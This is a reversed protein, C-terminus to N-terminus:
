KQKQLFGLLAAHWKEPAEFHPIHGVKPLEVLTAGPIAAATKKGLAPYQGVKSLLEPPVSAKGVVTRDEQGIVLLTPAKVRPFEHSVPQEYIM